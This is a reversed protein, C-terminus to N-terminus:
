EEGEKKMGSLLWIIILAAIFSIRAANALPGDLFPIIIMPLM